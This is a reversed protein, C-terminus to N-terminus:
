ILVHPAQPLNRYIPDAISFHHNQLGSTYIESKGQEGEFAKEFIYLCNVFSGKKM